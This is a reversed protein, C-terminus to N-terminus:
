SKPPRRSLNSVDVVPKKMQLAKWVMWNDWFVRGVVLPPLDEFLGRSFVFYDIWDPTRQKSTKLALDHLHRQWDPNRFECPVTIETDWRRGVM